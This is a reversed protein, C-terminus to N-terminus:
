EEILSRWRGAEEPRGYQEHYEVIFPIARIRVEPSEAEQLKEPQMVQSLLLELQEPTMVACTM